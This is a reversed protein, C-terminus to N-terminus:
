SRWFCAQFRTAGQVGTLSIRAVHVLGAAYPMTATVDYVTTADLVADATNRWITGEPSFQFVISGATPTVKNGTADFFKIYALECEMYTKSTAESTYAGDATDGEIYFLKSM